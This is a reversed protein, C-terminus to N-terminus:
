DHHVRKRMPGDHDERSLCFAFASSRTGLASMRTGLASMRTGLANM